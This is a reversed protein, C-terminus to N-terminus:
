ETKPAQAVAAVARKFAERAQEPVNKTSNLGDEIGASYVSNFLVALHELQDDSYDATDVLEELVDRVIKVWNPGDLGLLNYQDRQEEKM